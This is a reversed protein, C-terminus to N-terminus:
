GVVPSSLELESQIRELCTRLAEPDFVGKRHDFAGSLIGLEVAVQGQRIHSIDSTIIMFRVRRQVEAM